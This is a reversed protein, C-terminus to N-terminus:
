YYQTHEIKLYTHIIWKHNERLKIYLNFKKIYSKEYTCGQM